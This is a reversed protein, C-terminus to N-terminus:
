QEVRLTVIMREAGAGLRLGSVPSAETYDLGTAVRVYREDPSIGNSVDFGVWGIGDVHAEAWAHGAYQEARDDMLLYGGVYRAPVGLLRAAAIFVHAHDQCVGHGAALVDEASSAAHTHGTEYAVADLILASLGHLREIDSEFTQDSLAKALKRVLPGPRTLPTARHFLWVPAFGGGHGVIGANDTTEVAGRCTVVVDHGGAEVSLLTVRNNNHDDFELEKNGGEVAIEWNMVKQGARSKPTLRLQQLGYHVPHEYHYSTTHTINLRM